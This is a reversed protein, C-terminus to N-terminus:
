KFTGNSYYLSNQINTNIQQQMLWQSMGTIGISMTTTVSVLANNAQNSITNSIGGAGLSSIITTMGGNVSNTLTINSGPASTITHISGDGNTVTIPVAVSSSTLTTMPVMISQIVTGGVTDIQQFAFDISLTPSVDFGGRIASLQVPTLQVAGALLATDMTNQPYPAANAMPASIVAAAIAAIPTFRPLHRYLM